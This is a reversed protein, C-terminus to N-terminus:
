ASRLDAFTLLSRNMDRQATPVALDAGSLDTRMQGM